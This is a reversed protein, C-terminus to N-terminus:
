AIQSIIGEATYTVGTFTGASTLITIATAAKCRIHITPTEWPGTGTIAGAAIFSGSLQQIPFIMSRATNSEDTYTCTLTTALSTAATVNMNASVCFSGDSAGVTYTSISANAASQATVRSAKYIAPVGWGATSINNYKAYKGFTELRGDTGVLFYPTGSIQHQILTGGGIYLIQGGPTTVTAQTASVAVNGTTSGTLVLNAASTDDSATITPGSTGNGIKLGSPGVFIQSYRLASTGLTTTNDSPPNPFTSTSGGGGGNGGLVNPHNSLM